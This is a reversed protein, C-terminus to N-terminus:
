IASGENALLTQLAANKAALEATVADRNSSGIILVDGNEPRLSESLMDRIQPERRLSDHSSGPMIYKSDRFVLTTAGIGGMKVAADRQEIGSNIAPGLQKLLVAYNFNGLAVSCKAISIGAPIYYAIESFIVKGKGTMKTGNNSTSIFGNMKLHKILTKTSGSGIALEDSLLARSVHGRADILQMTKLVHVAGFSLLRSPAYRDAIKSLMKM